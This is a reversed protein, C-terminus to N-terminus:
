LLDLALERGDELQKRLVEIRRGLLDHLNHRLRHGDDVECLVGPREEVPHLVVVLHEQVAVVQKELLRHQGHDGVCHEGHTGHNLQRDAAVLPACLQAVSGDDLQLLGSVRQHVRRRQDYGNKVQEDLAQELVPVQLQGVADRAELADDGFHQRAHLLHHPVVHGQELLGRALVRGVHAGRRRGGDHGEEDGVGGLEDLAHERAVGGEVVPERRGGRAHARRRVADEVVLFAVGHARGGCGRRRRGHRARQEEVRLHRGHRGVGRHEDHGADRSGGYWRTHLVGHVGVDVDGRAAALRAVGVGVPGAHRKVWPVARTGGVSAARARGPLRVPVVM